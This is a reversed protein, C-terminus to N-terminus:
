RRSAASSSTRFSPRDLMGCTLSVSFWRLSSQSYPPGALLPSSRSPVLVDLDRLDRAIEIAQAFGAGSISQPLRAKERRSARRSPRWSLSRHPRQQAALSQVRGVQGRLPGGPLPPLQHARRPLPGPAAAARGAPGSAQRTPAPLWGTAGAGWAARRRRAARRPRQAGFLATSATSCSRKPSRIATSSVSSPAM